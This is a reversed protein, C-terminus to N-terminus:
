SSTSTRVRGGRESGQGQSSGSRERGESREERERGDGPSGHVKIKKPRATEAKPVVVELIGDRYTARIQEPDIASPLVFSRTFMGYFRELRYAGGENAQVEQKKEGRLTLTGNEVSVDIDDSSVGPVEARLVIRDSEEHIDVPPFWGGVTEGQSGRVFPDALRSMRDQLNMLDRFPEWRSIAM